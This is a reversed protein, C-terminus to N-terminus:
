QKEKIDLYARTREWDLRLRCDNAGQLDFGITFNEVPSVLPETKMDIRALDQKQDYETGWQGTQKNIILKWGEKGPLSYMTYKGAPIAVNDITLDAETVFTTAENAGTRWVKGYPVLDGYITRGKMRPSSYNVTVTKGDNFKCVAQEPPSARKSKDGEMQASCFLTLLLISSLVGLIAKARM